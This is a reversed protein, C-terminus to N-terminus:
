AFRIMVWAFSSFWLATVFLPAFYQNRTNTM